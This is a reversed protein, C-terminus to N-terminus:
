SVAHAKICLDLCMYINGTIQVSFQDVIGMYFERLCICESVRVSVGGEFMCVRVFPQGCKYVCVYLQCQVNIVNLM